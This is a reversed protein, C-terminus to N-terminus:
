HTEKTKKDLGFLSELCSGVARFIISHASQWSCINDYLLCYNINMKISRVNFSWAVYRPGIEFM